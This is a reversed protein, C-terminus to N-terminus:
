PAPSAAPTAEGAMGAPLINVLLFVAPVDGDNRAETGQFPGVSVADGTTLTVATKEAVPEFRFEAESARSVTIPGQSTLTLAGSEVVIFAATPDNPDAPLAAGTEITLRVLVVVGPNAPLEPMPAGGLFEASVGPPLEPGLEPTAEQAAAIPVVVCMLLLVAVLLSRPRRFM